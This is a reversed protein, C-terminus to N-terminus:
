RWTGTYGRTKMCNERSSDLILPNGGWANSEQGAQVSCEYYDKQYQDQGVGAQYFKTPACGCIFLGLLLSIAKTNLKMM